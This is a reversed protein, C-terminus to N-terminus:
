ANRLAIGNEFTVRPPTSRFTILLAPTPPILYILSHSSPTACPTELHIISNLIRMYPPPPEVFNFQPPLYGGFFEPGGWHAKSFPIARLIWLLTTVCEQFEVVMNSCMGLMGCCHQWMNRVDWLLTAVCDQSDMAINGCMGLIGCCHQQVNRVDQLSAVCEQCGVVITGCMGLLGCYHQWMMAVKRIWVMAVKRVWVM